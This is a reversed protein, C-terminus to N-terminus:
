RARGPSSSTRGPWRSGSGRCSPRSRGATRCAATSRGPRRSTSKARRTSSRSGEGRLGAPGAVARNLVVSGQSGGFVLLRRGPRRRRAGAAPHRLVRAPRANRHRGRAAGPARERRGAGRGDADRVPEPHPELPGAPRRLRPDPDSDRSLAGRRSRARQRLRGDRRGRSRPPPSSGAPRSSGRPLGALARIRDRASKGVFGSAHVSELPFGAEPVLRHELGEPTGVFM